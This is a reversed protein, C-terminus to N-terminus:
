LRIRFGAGLSVGSFDVVARHLEGDPESQVMILRPSGPLIPTLDYYLTGNETFEPVLEGYDGVVSTTTGELGRFRAYRGRAEMFFGLNRLIRYEIGLGGQLGLPVGNKDATTIFKQRNWSDIPNSEGISWEAQYRARAYYSLGAEATVDFKGGIPLTLFLSLRIPVAKLKTGERFTYRHFAQGEEDWWMDPNLFDTSLTLYGAGIGVCVSPTLQFIIDGGIEYGRHMPSFGGEIV